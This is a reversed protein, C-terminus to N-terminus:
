FAPKNFNIIETITNFGGRAVLFDVYSILRHSNKLSEIPILNKQEAVYLKLKESFNEISLYFDIDHMNKLYKVTQGILISNTKTGNDMILCKFKNSSKFIDSTQDKSNNNFVLNVDKFKLYNNSLIKKKIFTSFFVNNSLQLYNKILSIEKLSKLESKLFFWDWAFRAIGYSPINLIKALKFAEPVLDSIILDFNLLDKEKLLNKIASNSKKPWNILIKKTANLDLEGNKKKVTYLTSPYYRYKLKSGFYEKLFFLRKRNFITFQINSNYKFFETIITKQRASHGYGEDSIFLGIKNIKKKL